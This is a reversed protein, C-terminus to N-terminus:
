SSLVRALLYMGLGFWVIEYPYNKSTEYKQIKAHFREIFNFPHRKKDMLERLWHPFWMLDPSACAVGCVIALLWFDPRVVFLLLLVCLAFLMDIGLTVKFKHSVHDALGYHPLADLVFHLLFALPIALLPQHITLGVLAGTLTHNTATM